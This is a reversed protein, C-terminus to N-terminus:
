QRNIEIKQIMDDGLRAIEALVAEKNISALLEDKGSSREPITSYALNLRWARSVTQPNWLGAIIPRESDSNLNM